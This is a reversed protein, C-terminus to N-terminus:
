RWYRPIHYSIYVMNVQSVEVMFEEDGSIADTERVINLEAVTLGESQVNSNGSQDMAVAVDTQRGTEADAKCTQRQAEGTPSPESM